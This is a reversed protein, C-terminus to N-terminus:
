FMLVPWLVCVPVTVEAAFFRQPRDTLTGRPYLPAGTAPVAEVLAARLAAVGRGDRASIPFVRAHDGLEAIWRQSIADIEGAQARTAPSMRPRGDDGDEHPSTPARPADSRTVNSHNLSGIRIRCVTHAMEVCVSM